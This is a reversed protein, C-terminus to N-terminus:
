DERMDPPVMSEDRYKKWMDGLYEKPGPPYASFGTCFQFYSDYSPAEPKDATVREYEAKMFGYQTHSFFDM